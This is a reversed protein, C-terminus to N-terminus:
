GNTGPKVHDNFYEPLTQSSSGASLKMMTGMVPSDDVTFMMAGIGFGADIAYYRGKLGAGEWDGSDADSKKKGFAGLFADVNQNAVDPSSFHYYFITYDG